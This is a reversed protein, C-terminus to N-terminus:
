CHWTMLSARQRAPPAPGARVRHVPAKASRDSVPVARPPLPPLVALVPAVGVEVSTAGAASPLTGLRRSECCHTNEIAPDPAEERREHTGECCATGSSMGMMPCYFYAAGSRLVGLLTVLAVVAALVRVSSFRLRTHWAM